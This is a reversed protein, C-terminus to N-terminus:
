AASGVDNLAARALTTLIERASPTGQFGVQRLEETQRTGSYHLTGREAAARHAAEYQMVAEDDAPMVRIVAAIRDLHDAARLNRPDDPHRQAVERRWEATAVMADALHKRFTSSSIKM